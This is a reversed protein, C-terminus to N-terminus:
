LISVLVLKVVTTKDMRIVTIAQEEEVDTGIEVEPSVLLAVTVGILM